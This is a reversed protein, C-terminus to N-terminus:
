FGGAVIMFSQSVQRLGVPIADKQEIGPLSPVIGLGHPIAGFSVPHIGDQDGPEDGLLGHAHPGVYGGCGSLAFQIPHNTPARRDDAEFAGELQRHAIQAAKGVWSLATTARNSAKSALISRVM